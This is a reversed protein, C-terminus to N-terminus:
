DETIEFIIPLHDSININPHGKPDTLYKTKTETIIKLSTDVFRKKLSPRIIVQDYINWFINHSDSDKYYYTGYPKNSDGLFNWMPNYFMYYEEEAVIRSKKQTSEFIPLSHFYRAGICAPDFPNINFDGVVITNDTNLNTELTRIEHIIKDITIKRREDHDPYAKSQLHVCCLIDKDNIIQLSAHSLQIGPQINDISGFINIRDCGLTIYKKMSKGHLSLLYLLNNYDAKYEALIFLSIHNEIILESLIPNIKENNHTNWFLVKM